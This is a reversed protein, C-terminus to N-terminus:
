TELHVHGFTIETPIQQGAAALGLRCCVFDGDDSPPGDTVPRLLSQIKYLKRINTQLIAVVASQISHLDLFEDFFFADGGVGEVM